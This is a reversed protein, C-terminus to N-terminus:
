TIYMVVGNSATQAAMRQYVSQATILMYDQM